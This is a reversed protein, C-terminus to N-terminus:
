DRNSKIEVEVEYSNRDSSSSSGNDYGDSSGCPCRHSCCLCCFVCWCVLGVLSCIGSIAWYGGTSGWVFGNGYSYYTRYGFGHNRHGGLHIHSSRSGHHKVKIKISRRKHSKPRSSRHSSRSRSSRHGREVHVQALKQSAHPANHVTVHRTADAGSLLIVCVSLLGILNKLM